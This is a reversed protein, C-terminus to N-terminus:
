YYQGFILNIVTYYAMYTLLIAYTAWNFSDIPGGRETIYANYVEVPYLDGQHRRLASQLGRVSVESERRNQSNGTLHERLKAKNPLALIALTQYDAVEQSQKAFIM